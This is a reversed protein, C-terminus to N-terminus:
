NVKYIDASEINAADVYANETSGAFTRIIFYRKASYDISLIQFQFNIANHSKLVDGVAWRPSWTSPPQGGPLPVGTTEIVPNVLYNLALATALLGVLNKQIKIKIM